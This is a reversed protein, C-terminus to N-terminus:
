EEGLHNFKLPKTDINYEFSAYRNVSPKWLNELDEGLAM